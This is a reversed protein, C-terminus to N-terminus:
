SAKSTTHGIVGALRRGAIGARVVTTVQEPHDRVLWAPFRLVRDGRLWLANQRAMDDWAELANLHHAGDIEIHIRWQEYYFDLYRNRGRADKRRHQRSPEPLGARRILALFDLESLATAGGAADQATQTILHHRRIHPTRALAGLLDALQIMRQQFCAAIIAMAERDTRAWAAARVLSHAVRTRPPRGPIIDRQRLTSTRRVEVGKPATGCKRRAPLLVFVSPSTFGKLGHERLASLGGLPAPDGNGVALSAVWLEQPWTLTGNHTVVVGPAPAAL